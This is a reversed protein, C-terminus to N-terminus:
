LKGGEAIKHGVNWRFNARNAITYSNAEPVVVLPTKPTPLEPFSKVLFLEWM